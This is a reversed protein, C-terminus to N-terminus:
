FFAPQLGLEAFRGSGPLLTMWVTFATIVRAAEQAKTSEAASPWTNAIKQHPSEFIAFDCIFDVAPRSAGPHV